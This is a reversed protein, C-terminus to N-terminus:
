AANDGGPGGRPQDGARACTSKGRQRQRHAPSPIARHEVVGLVDRKGSRHDARGIKQQAGAAIQRPRPEMIDDDQSEQDAGREPLAGHSQQEDAVGQERDRKV